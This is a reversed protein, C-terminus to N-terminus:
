KLIYYLWKNCFFVTPFLFLFQHNPPKLINSFTDSGCHGTITVMHNVEEEEEPINEGEM